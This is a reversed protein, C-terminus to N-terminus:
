SVSPLTDIGAPGLRRANERVAQPITASRASSVVFSSFGLTWSAASTRLGRKGAM